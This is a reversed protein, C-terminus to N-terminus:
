PRVAVLAVWANAGKSDYARVMVTTNGEPVPIGSAVWTTTGSATGTAGNSTQWVIQTVGAGGSAKGSISITSSKVTMVATAPSSISLTIPTVTTGAPQQLTVVTSKTTVQDECDYATVSLTNAGTVLPINTTSWTGAATLTATGTYGRDTQWTVSTTGNGGTVTGNLELAANLTTSPTASITLALPNVSSTTGTSPTTPAPALTTVTVPAVPAAPSTVPAVTSGAAPYLELAAGIDNTSLAMGRHYYPYMVDNPNDSHTLGLAHGIEHLAVTYIDTDAGVKWAEDADFHMNGAVPESNIPAPYFTHALIGGPGDFPFADGHAGSAFEISISRALNAATAPTFTVNVVAAWQAFARLIESQAQAAPVKTTLSGFFYTLHAANDADLNWGHMINSYQAVQGAVTMMGACPYSTMAGSLMQPDAPFVYAVEDRAALQNITNADAQVIAHKALLGAPRLFNVNLASEVAAQGTADVDSHFEVIVTSQSSTATKAIMPSVKDAAEIAGIWTAGAPTTTLGSVVVANDPLVGTVQGGANMLADLDNVGVAHDFTVVQHGGLGTARAATAPTFSRTKMHLEQGFLGTAALLGSILIASSTQIKKMFKKDVFNKESQSFKRFNEFCCIQIYAAIRKSLASWAL